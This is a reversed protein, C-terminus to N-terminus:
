EVGTPKEDLILSFLPKSEDFKFVYAIAFYVAIGVLLSTFLGIMPKHPLWIFAIWYSVLGMVASAACTKAVSMLTKSIGLPGVKKRLLYGLVFVNFWSALSSALALVGVSRHGTFFLAGIIVVNILIAAAAVKVPTKTQQYAYFASALVKVTAYAPLGLTYWFLASNTLLTAQHNFEGREFLVHIMPIGLVMLGTAAPVLMFMNFRMAFNLTAKFDDPDNRSVAKAMSPLAVSALAIGFIALPLQMIRNSYYLATISGEHLFSACVTDVFANIQDVSLGITAPLMLWAIKRVGPHSFNPKWKLKWGLKYIAPLQILYQALGGIIVSIALGKIQNDPSLLPAIALLFVIEAVSLTAPAVAPMFFASLTNLIGLGLAAMCIFLLFPFMLQTLTVTLAMKESNSTFGYAIVNVLYPAFVIGLATIVVLIILLISYLANLLDQTEEKTKTHLYESLVPIFSASLAGEGLLRRFLNPIRYAAYFADASLGAGFTHAVLMDRLYGLVRSIATGGAIHGAHKTLKKEQEM